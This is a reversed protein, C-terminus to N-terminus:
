SQGDQRNAQLEAFIQKDIPQFRIRDGPMFPSPMSATGDFLSLPTRGILQWGGPTPLGYIGSHVGGIGVSGAPVHLRPEGRRACQLAPPLGELYVFGPMFGTMAVRYDAGAHLCIAAERDIGTVLSVMEWDPGFDYCVPIEHCKAERVPMTKGASWDVAALKEMLTHISLPSHHLLIALSDFAPVVEGGGSKQLLENILADAHRVLDLGDPTAPLLRLLIAREALPFMEWPTGEIPRSSFAM